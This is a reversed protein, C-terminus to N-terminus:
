CQRMPTGAGLRRATRYRLRPTLRHRCPPLPVVRSAVGCDADLLLRHGEHDDDPGQHSLWAASGTRRSSCATIHEVSWTAATAYNAIRASSTIAVSSHSRDWTSPPWLRTTATM